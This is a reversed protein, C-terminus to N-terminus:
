LSYLLFLPSFRHQSKRCALMLYILILHDGCKKLPQQRFVMEEDKSRKVEKVRQLIRGSRRETNEADGQSYCKYKENTTYYREMSDSDSVAATTDSVEGREGRCATSHIVQAV